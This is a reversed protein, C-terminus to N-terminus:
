LKTATITYHNSASVTGAIQSPYFTYSKDRILLIFGTDLPVNCFRFHGSIDSIALGLSGGDVIIGELPMGCGSLTIQGTIDAVLEAPKEIKEIGRDQCTDELEKIVSEISRNETKEGKLLELLGVAVKFIEKTVFEAGMVGLAVAAAASIVATELATDLKRLADINFVREAAASIAKLLSRGQEAHGVPTITTEGRIIGDPNVPRILQDGRGPSGHEPRVTSSDNGLNPSSPVARGERQLDNSSPAHRAPPEIRTYDGTTGVALAQSHPRSDADHSPRPTSRDIVSQLIDRLHDTNSAISSQIAPIPSHQSPLQDQTSPPQPPRNTAENILIQQILRAADNRPDNLIAQVDPSTAPSREPQPPERKPDSHRPESATREPEAASRPQEGKDTIPATPPKPGREEAIGSLVQAVARAIDDRRIEGGEPRHPPQERGVDERNRGEQPRETSPKPTELSAPREASYTHMPARHSTWQPAQAPMFPLQGPIGLVNGPSLGSASRQLAANIFDDVVRAAEVLSPPAHHPTSTTQNGSAGGLWPATAQYGGAPAKSDDRGYVVSPTNQNGQHHKESAGPGGRMVSMRELVVDAVAIAVAIEATHDDTDHNHTDQSPVPANELKM